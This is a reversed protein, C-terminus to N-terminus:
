GTAALIDKARKTAVTSIEEFEDKEIHLHERLQELFAVEADAQDGDIWSLTVAHTMLNRRDGYSLETLPIDELTRKEKAYEQLEKTEEDTAGFSELLADLLEKERAEFNGDSWAVSVLGQLIAKDQEHM